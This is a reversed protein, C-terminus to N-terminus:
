KEPPERVQKSGGFFGGGAEIVEISREIGKIDPAGTKFFYQRKQLYAKILRNIKDLIFLMKFCTDINQKKKDLLSFFETYFAEIGKKIEGNEEPSFVPFVNDYAAYIASFYRKLNPVCLNNWVEEKYMDIKRFIIDLRTNTLVSSHSRIEEETLYVM